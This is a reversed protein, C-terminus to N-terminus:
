MQTLDYRSRAPLSIRSRPRLAALVRLYVDQSPVGHPMELFDGLWDAEKRGWDELAEADDCNCMCGLVAITLVNVLPHRKGRELRPDEVVALSRVLHRLISESLAQAADCGRCADQKSM